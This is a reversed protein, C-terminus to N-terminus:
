SFFAIFFAVDDHKAIKKEGAIFSLTYKTIMKVTPHARYKKEERKLTFSHSLSIILNLIMLAVLFISVITISFM